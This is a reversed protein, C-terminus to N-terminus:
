IAKDNSIKSLIETILDSFIDTKESKFCSLGEGNNKAKESENSQRKIQM